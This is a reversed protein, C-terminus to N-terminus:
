TKRLNLGQKHRTPSDRHYPDKVITIAPILIFMKRRDIMGCFCNMMMGCFCNMMMMILEDVLSLSDAIKEINGLGMPLTIIPLVNAVM